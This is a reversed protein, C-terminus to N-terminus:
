QKIDPSLYTKNRERQLGKTHSAIISVISEILFKKAKDKEKRREESSYAKFQPREEGIAPLDLKKAEAFTIEWARLWKEIDQIKTYGKFSQYKDIIDLKRAQNTPALRRQLGVLM